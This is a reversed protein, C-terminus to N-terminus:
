EMVVQQWEEIGKFLKVVMDNFCNSFQVGVELFYDNLDNSYDYSCIKILKEVWELEKDDMDGDVGVIFIIILLIVDFMQQKEMEILKSFERLM